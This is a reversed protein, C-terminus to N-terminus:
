RLRDASRVLEDDKKIGRLALMYLVINVLLVALVPSYAVSSDAALEAMNDAYFFVLVGFVVQVLIAAQVLKMQFKRNRYQMIGYVSLFISVM